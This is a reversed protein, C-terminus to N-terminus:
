ADDEADPAGRADAVVAAVLAVALGPSGCGRPSPGAASSCAGAAWVVPAALFVLAARALGSGCRHGSRGGARRPGYAALLAAVHSALLAAAAVLAWPASPTAPPWRGVLVVVLAM